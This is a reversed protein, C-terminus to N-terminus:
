AVIASRPELLTSELKENALDGAELLEVLAQAIRAVLVADLVQPSERLIPDLELVRRPLLLGFRFHLAVLELRLVGGFGALLLRDHVRAVVRHEDRPARGDLVVLRDRLLVVAARRRHERLIRRGRVRLEILDVVVEGVLVLLRAIERVRPADIEVENLVRRRRRINGIRVQCESLEEEIFRLAVRRLPRRRLLGVFLDDLLWRRVVLDETVRPVFDRVHKPVRAVKRM